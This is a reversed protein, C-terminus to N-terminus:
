LKKNKFKLLVTKYVKIVTHYSNFLSDIFYKIIKQIFWVCTLLCLYFKFVYLLFAISSKDKLSCLSFNIIANEKYLKFILVNQMPFGESTNKLKAQKYATYEHPKNSMAKYQITTKKGVHLLRNCNSFTTYVM